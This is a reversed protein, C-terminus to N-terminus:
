RLWRRCARISDLLTQCVAARVRALDAETDVGVFQTITRVREPAARRQKYAPVVRKRQM